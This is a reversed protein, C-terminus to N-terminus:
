VTTRCLSREQSPLLAARLRGVREASEAVDDAVEHEWLRLATWGLQDLKADVQRDRSRNGDLKNTWYASNSKPRTGHVPCSHWFCGDVFVVLKRGSFMMDARRRPLGPLPADVRYRLGRRHAEKRIAVEPATDRRRARSMRAAVEPTSASPREAM